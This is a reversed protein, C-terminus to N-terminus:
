TARLYLIINIAKASSTIYEPMNKLLGKYSM